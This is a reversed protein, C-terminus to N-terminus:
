YKLSYGRSYPMDTSTYALRTSVKTNGQPECGRVIGFATNWAFVPAGSDGGNCAMTGVMEVHYGAPCSVSCGYHLAVYTIDGCGQGVLPGTTRGYFCVTSGQATSALTRRGTIARPPENNNGIIEALATLSSPVRVFMWDGANTYTVSTTDLTLTHTATDVYTLTGAQNCHGATFFGERNSPDRASFAVTCWLGGNLRYATGGRLAAPMIPGRVREARVPLGLVRELRATAAAADVSEGAPEYYKVVVSGDRQDFAVFDINPFAAALAAGNRSIAERAAHRTAGAGARFEVPTSVGANIVREATGVEADSIGLGRRLAGRDGAPRAGAPRGRHQLTASPRAQRGTLRMVLRFEPGHEFYTGALEAGHQAELAEIEESASAMVIMRRMAEELSVGHIQMYAKADLVLTEEPTLVPGPDASEPGQPSEGAPQAHIAFTTGTSVLLAFLALKSSKGIMAIDEL